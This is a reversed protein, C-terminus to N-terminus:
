LVVIHLVLGLGLCVNEGISFLVLRSAALRVYFILPTISIIDNLESTCRATDGRCLDVIMVSLTRRTFASRDFDIANLRRSSPSLAPFGLISAVIGSCV